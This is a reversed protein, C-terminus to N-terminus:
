PLALIKFRLDSVVMVGSNGWKLVYVNNQYVLTAVKNKENSWDLLEIVTKSPVAQILEEQEDRFRCSGSRASVLVIDGVNASRPEPM